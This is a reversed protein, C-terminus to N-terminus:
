CWALIERDRMRRPRVLRRWPRFGHGWTGSATPEDVRAMMRCVPPSGCGGSGGTLLGGGGYSRLFTSSVVRSAWFVIGKRWPGPPTPPSPRRPSRFRTDCGCCGSSRRPRRGSGRWSPPGAPLLPAGLVEPFAQDGVTTASVQLRSSEPTVAPDGPIVTSGYRGAQGTAETLCSRSNRARRRSRPALAAQVGM